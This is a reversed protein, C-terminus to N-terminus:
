KRSVTSGGYLIGQNLPNRYKIELQMSGLDVIQIIFKNWKLNKENQNESGNSESYVQIPPKV